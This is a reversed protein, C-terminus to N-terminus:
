ERAYDELLRCRTLLAQELQVGQATATRTDAAHLNAGTLDVDQLLVENLRAKMLNAGRWSAQVIRSGTFQSDRAVLHWADTGTLDCNKVFGRDLRTERLTARGLDTDQLVAKGLDARNLNAQRLDTGKLTRLGAMSAGEFRAGGAQCSMLTAGQLAAGDLTIGDLMCKDFMAKTFSSQAADAGTFRCDKFRASQGQAQRLAAKEFGCAKLQATTWVTGTLTAQTFLTKDLRAESFDAAPMAAKAAQCGTLQARVFRAKGLQAASFDCDEIRCETFNADELNANRFICGRLVSKSLDLGRLDVGSLDLGQLESWSASAGNAHRALLTDRDIVTRPGPPLTGDPLPRPTPEQARLAEAQQSIEAAKAQIGAMKAAFTQYQKVLEAKKAPPLNLSAILDAPDQTVPPQARSRLLAADYDAGYEKWKARVEAEAAALADAVHQKVAAKFAIPDSPWVPMPAAAATAPAGAQALKASLPGFGYSQMAQDIEALAAARADGITKAIAAKHAAAAQAAAETAEKIRAAADDASPVTSPAAVPEARAEDSARWVAAWHETPQPPDALKETFVAVGLIDQADERRVAAEGRYMVLVRRENPFLWVTDLDLPLEARREPAADGRILVRPRLGPLTGRLEAHQPHMNEAFWTEDGRWYGPRCQDQEFRDFWRPDTDDPLWPLRERQWRRDLTGLWRAQDPSGQPLPGFLAPPPRDSPRLVPADPREVNPLAVGNAQDPDACYGRGLPNLAYGKGGYARAPGIPMRAFPQPASAQWGTLGHTWIRDGQVLVSKHLNGVGARVTLGTVPSGGPACADGALGYGGRTKKQALDFPDDAFLPALWGWAEQESVRAGDPGCCYAVTVNLSPQGGRSQYGLLLMADAPKHIRM